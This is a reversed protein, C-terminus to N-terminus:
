KKYRHSKRKEVKREVMQIIKGAVDVGTTTEIGELGPSANVEMILPGRHSRLLDVGAVDLGMVRTAKLVAKEERQTLQVVSASAGRHLNSRFEGARAQRKMTAVIQGAVVLARIDAGGAESIYEQIVFRENIRQFTEVTAEAAHLSEALIVGAGHTSELLKIVVPLGGLNRIIKELQPHDGVSITKPVPIGVQTLRQLSRFKDRSELLADSGTATTIHMNEFQRILAAGVYTVSSGIRPVVANLFSLSRNEYYVDSRGRYVSLDCRTHDIIRVHHGRSIGASRLSQTSYLHPGRSLIGIKM